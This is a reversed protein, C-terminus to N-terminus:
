PRVLAAALSQHFWQPIEDPPPQICVWSLDETSLTLTSDVLSYRRLCGERDPRLRLRLHTPSEISYWYRLPLRKEPRERDFVFQIARGAGTFHLFGIGTPEETAPFSWTGVLAAAVADPDFDTALPETSM